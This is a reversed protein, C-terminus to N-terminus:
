RIRQSIEYHSIEGSAAREEGDVTITGSAVAAARKETTVVVTGDPLKSTVRNTYSSGYKSGALSMAVIRSAPNETVEGTCGDYTWETGVVVGTASASAQQRGFAYASPTGEATGSVEFYGSGGGECALETTTYWSAYLTVTGALNDRVLSLSHQGSEDGAEARDLNAPIGSTDGLVPAAAVAALGIALLV